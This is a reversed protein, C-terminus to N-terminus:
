DALQQKKLVQIRAENLSTTSSTSITSINSDNRAKIPADDTSSSNAIENKLHEVNGPLVIRELLHVVTDWSSSMLSRRLECVFQAFPILQKLEVFRREESIEVALNIQTEIHTIEINNPDFIKTVSSNKAMGRLLSKKLADITLVNKLM